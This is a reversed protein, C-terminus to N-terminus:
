QLCQQRGQFFGGLEEPKKRYWLLKVRAEGAWHEKCNKWAGGWIFLCWSVLGLDPNTSNDWGARHRSMLLVSASCQSYCCFLLLQAEGEGELGSEPALGTFVLPWILGRHPEISQSPIINCWFTFQSDTNLHAVYWSHNCLCNGSLNRNLCWSKSM